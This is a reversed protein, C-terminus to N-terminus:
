ASSGRQTDTADVNLVIPGGPYPTDQPTPMAAPMPAIPQASAAAIASCSILAALAANRLFSMVDGLFSAARMKAAIM